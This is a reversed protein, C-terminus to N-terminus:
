SDCFALRKQGDGIGPTWESERGDLWHHWEAMEAETMRKEEQGLGEWCWLRKWHTLNRMLHGFYQLNLKQMMGELSIGPSIEKPISQNSRRATWPARLLRRWCWLWFCWNKQAWSEKHDLEWMWVHSSSFGYGQSSPGKYAFYHRQKKIHQRPKKMAKRRLLLHRIIEHSCDGDVTIKSGLFIFDSVTEMTEGDTQM